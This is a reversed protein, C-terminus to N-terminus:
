HYFYNEPPQFTFTLSQLRGKSFFATLRQTLLTSLMQDNVQLQNNVQLM